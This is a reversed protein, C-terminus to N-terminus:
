SPEIIQDWKAATKQVNLKFMIKQFCEIYVKKHDIWIYLINLKEAFKGLKSKQAIEEEVRLTTVIKINEESILM